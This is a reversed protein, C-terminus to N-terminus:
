RMSLLDNYVEETRKATEKWHFNESVYQLNRRGAKVAEEPNKLFFALAHALEEFDNPGVLRGNEGDKLLIPIEGINSSVIPKGAAMAELLVLGFGELLSPFVFVDCVKFFNRKAEDNVRGKFSVFKDMNLRHVIKKFREQKGSGIIILEPCPDCRDIHQLLFKMALLLVHLGKRQILGGVFLIVFKSELGLDKRLRAVESRSSKFEEPYIGNYITRIRREPINFKSVISLKTYGSVSIITDVRKCIDREIAPRALTQPLGVSIFKCFYCFDDFILNRLSSSQTVLQELGESLHHITAARKIHVFEKSLPFDSVDNTHLLEFGNCEKEIKRYNKRLRFWFSPLALFPDKLAPIRHVSVLNDDYDLSRSALTTIVHIENGLEALEHCLAKAYVGAGGVVYPPYEFSVFCVKM